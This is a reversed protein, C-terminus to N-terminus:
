RDQIRGYAALRFASERADFSSPIESSSTILFTISFSVTPPSNVVTSSSASIASRNAANGLLANVPCDGTTLWPQNMCYNIGYHAENLACVSQGHPRRDLLLREGKARTARVTAIGQAEIGVSICLCITPDIEQSTGGCQRRKVCSYAPGANKEAKDCRRQM